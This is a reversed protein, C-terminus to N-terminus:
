KSYNRVVLADGNDIKCMANLSYANGPYFVVHASYRPLSSKGIRPKETNDVTIHGSEYTAVGLITELQDYCMINKQHEVMFKEYQDRQSGNLQKYDLKKM